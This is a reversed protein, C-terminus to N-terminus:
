QLKTIFAHPVMDSLFWQMKIMIFSLHDSYISTSKFNYQVFKKYQGTWRSQSSHALSIRGKYRLGRLKGMNYSGFHCATISHRKITIKM